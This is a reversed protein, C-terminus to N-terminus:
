RVVDPRGLLFIMIRQFALSEIGLNPHEAVKALM